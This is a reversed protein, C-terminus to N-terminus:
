NKSSEPITFSFISGAGVESEVWIKGNHKEIFEKCLLLGLGTSLEGETGNRSTKENIMFLKNKLEPTMGIGSDSIKIEIFHNNSYVAAVNIKGGAPTFKVSNSVLNRIVADIMHNDAFVEMEDPISFTLEIRKKRASETLVDICSEIKEKLNLKEPIFDMGGRKLRSWELLNELLTYINSASTKLNQTIERIEEMNMTQIEEALIQTAAVFASLPSRLDHAIISFFKDKEANTTQLLENKRKIEEEAQKRDTIDRSIGFTGVVQGDDNLLPVKTTYVWTDPRDTWTEREEKIVPQGTLIIAQEDDYAQKAHEESFFDFDTKGVLNEPDKIGFMQAQTSNVRIFRSERDKFYIHDPLNDMLNHMLYQEKILKEETLKRENSSQILQSNQYVKSSIENAFAFLMQAVKEFKMKSMVPVEELANIFDKEDAGIKKAYQLMDKLDLEENKVQGILWNAIHKGGVIISAGADWLGGSLCPQIVPGSLNPRGIEADSKFCNTLGIDTKRIIENCLRCFNSPRTIPTGDPYTIISAVGTADAFLDQIRQIDDLNFIDSFEIVNKKENNKQM